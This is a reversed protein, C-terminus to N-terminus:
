IKISLLVENIQVSVQFEAIKYFISIRTGYGSTVSASQKRIVTYSKLLCKVVHAIFLPKYLMLEAKKVAHKRLSKM